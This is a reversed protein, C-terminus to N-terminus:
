RAAGRRPSLAGSRPPPTLAGSRPPPEVRAPGTVGAIMGFTVVLIGVWGALGLAEGLALWAGLAVTAPVAATVASTQPGGLLVVARTFLYGALVVSVAGHYAMQFLAIGPAIEGLRSPLLWWWVPLFIPAAYLAVVLTADLAGIGWKRILYTYGAWSLVAGGFMLHGRWAGPHGGFGDGALLVLGVAVLGLSLMRRWGWAEDFGIWWAAAIIFPLLGAMIAAGHAAPAFHFGGYAGLSFGFGATATLALARGLPVRPPGRLLLFPLATLFAGAYRLGAIDWVTFSQAASLRSFLQFGTWIVLVGIACLLGQRRSTM